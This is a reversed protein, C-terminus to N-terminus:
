KIDKARCIGRSLLMTRYLEKQKNNFNDWARRHVSVSLLDPDNSLMQELKQDIHEIDSHCINCAGYPKTSPPITCVKDLSGHIYEMYGSYLIFETLVRQKQFWEPFNGGVRASIDTIM